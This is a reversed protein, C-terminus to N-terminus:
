SKNIYFDVPLSLTIFEQEMDGPFPPFPAARKLMKEVAKDLLRHGSSDTIRYGALNGDKNIIFTIAVTGEQKRRLARSPYRKHRKLIASITARYSAKLTASVGSDSIYGQSLTAQRSHASDTKERPATEAPPQLAKKVPMQRAIEQKVAVAPAIMPAPAPKIKIVEVADAPALTETDAMEVAEIAEVMTVTEFEEPAAKAPSIEEAAFVPPSTVTVHFGELGARTQGPEVRSLSVLMLGHLGLALAVAGCKQRLTFEM